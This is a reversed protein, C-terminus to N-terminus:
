SCGGPPSADHTIQGLLERRRAERRTIEAPDAIEPEPPPIPEANVVTLQRPQQLRRTVDAVLARADEAKATVLAPQPQHVVSPREGMAAHPVAGPTAADGRRARELRAEYLRLFHARDAMQNQSDCLEGWGMARVLEAVLPHTDPFPRNRGVRTISAVVHAWAEDAALYPSEAAEAQTGAVLRRLEAPDLRETNSRFWGMAAAEASAYDLDVVLKAWLKLTELPLAPTPYRAAIMGVISKAETPTM